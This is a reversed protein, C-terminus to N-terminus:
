RFNRVQTVNRYGAGKTIEEKVKKVVRDVDYDKEIKDVNINIEYLVDGYTNSTDGMGSMANALVDKLAIFNQTDKANLVLEPRSPTGDLWAPGTYSALGGTAFKVGKKQLQPKTFANRNILAQAYERSVSNNKQAKKLYENKNYKDVDVKGASADWIKVADKTAYYIKGNAGVSATVNNKLKYTKGAICAASVLSKMKSSIKSGVERHKIAYILADTAEKKNKTFDATSLDAIKTTTVDGTLKGTKTDIGKENIEKGEENTPALVRNRKKYHIKMEKGKTNITFLNSKSTQLLNDTFFKNTLKFENIVNEM